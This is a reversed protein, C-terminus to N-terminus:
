KTPVQGPNVLGVLNASVIWRYTNGSLPATRGNWCTILTIIPQGDDALVERAHEQRVAFSRGLERIYYSKTVQYEFVRGVADYILIPDSPKLSWLGAFLGVGFQNPGILNHHGALIVNGAEGPRATNSLHGAAHYPVAWDSYLVGNQQAATWTAEQVPADLKMAPIVVRVAPQGNGRPLPFSLATPTAPASPAVTAPATALAILPLQAEVSTERQGLAFALDPGFYSNAVYLALAAGVAVLLSGVIQLTRREMM